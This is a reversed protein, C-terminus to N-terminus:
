TDNAEVEGRYGKRAIPFTTAVLLSNAIPMCGAIELHLAGKKHKMKLFPLRIKLREWATIAGSYKASQKIENGAKLM